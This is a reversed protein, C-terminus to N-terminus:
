VKCLHAHEHVIIYGRAIGLLVRNKSICYHMLQGLSGTIITLTEAWFFRRKVRLMCPLFDASSMKFISKKNRSSLLTQCKM